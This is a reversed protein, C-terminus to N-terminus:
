LTIDSNKPQGRKVSLVMQDQLVLLELNVLLEMKVMPVLHDKLESSVLSDPTEKLVKRDKLEKSVSM